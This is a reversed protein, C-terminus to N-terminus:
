SQKSYVITGSYHGPKFTRSINHLSESHGILLYGGPLLNDYFASIVHKKMADDFYIIVNRCFIIQSREVKQLQGKDNLNIQSFSILNALKPEVRFMKDEKKFYKAIIEPPTTRLAYDSYLGKRALALMALSLDNATIKIDWATLDQKLVEALIIALTYPEEGSSCGASWIRLKKQGKVRLEDLVPILVKDRFIDLQPGNRFFSTENTTMLEFLKNLEQVRNNDFRLYNYYEGFNRLGLDRLRTSLRNEVLYKRNEAIFIGSQQYLFDRLQSFEEDSVRTDSGARMSHSADNGIDFLPKSAQPTAIPSTAPKAMFSPKAASTVAPQAGFSSQPAESGPQSAAPNSFLPKYSSRETAGTQGAGIKDSLNGFKETKTGLSADRNFQLVGDVGRQFLSPRDPKAQDPSGATVGSPRTADKPPFLPKYEPKATTERPPFLPASQERPPFLSKREGLTQGTGLGSSANSKEATPQDKDKKTEFPSNATFFNSM